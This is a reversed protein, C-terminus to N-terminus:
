RMWNNEHHKCRFASNSENFVNKICNISYTLEIYYFIHPDVNYELFVSICLNNYTGPIKVKNSFENQLHNVDQKALSM